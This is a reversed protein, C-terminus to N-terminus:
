GILEEVSFVADPFALPALTDGHGVIRVDRYGDDSPDRYVEIQAKPLNVLWYEPIGHDAYIDGKISRDYHASTEAVEIVLLIDAATPHAGSYYDARPRLLTLDPQPELRLALRIPNQVSITMRSALRSILLHNLRNTEGAHGPGIPPMEVIEGEILEVREEPGIIGLEAMRYYEDVTFRRPAPDTKREIIEGNILEISNGWPIIGAEALRHYEDVTFRKKAVLDPPSKVPATITM